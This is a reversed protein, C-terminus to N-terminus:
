KDRLKEILDDLKEIDRRMSKIQFAVIGNHIGHAVLWGFLAVAFPWYDILQDIVDPNQISQQM